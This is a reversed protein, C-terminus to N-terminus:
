EAGAEGGERPVTSPPVFRTWGVQAYDYRGDLPRWSPVREGAVTAPVVTMSLIRYDTPAYIAFLYLGDVGLLREHQQRRLYFRGRQGSALRVSASKIEVPTGSEISCIGDLRLEESSPISQTAEADIGRRESDPVWRLGDIRQVVAAEIREGSQKSSATM